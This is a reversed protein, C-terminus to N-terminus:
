DAEKAKPAQFSDDQVLRCTEDYHGRRQREARASHGEGFNAHMPWDDDIQEAATQGPSPKSGSLRRLEFGFRYVLDDGNQQNDDCADQQESM